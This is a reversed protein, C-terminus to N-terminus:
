PSASPRPSTARARAPRDGTVSSMTREEGGGRDRIAVMRQGTPSHLDDLAALFAIRLLGHDDQRIFCAAHQGRPHQIRNSAIRHEFLRM